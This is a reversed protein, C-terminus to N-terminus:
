IRGTCQSHPWIARRRWRRARAQSTTLRRMIRVLLPCTLCDLGAVLASMQHFPINFHRLYQIIICTLKRPFMLFSECEKTPRDSLRRSQILYNAIIIIDWGLLGSRNHSLRLTAYSFIAWSLLVLIVPLVSMIKILTLDLQIKRGSTEMIYNEESTHNNAAIIFEM